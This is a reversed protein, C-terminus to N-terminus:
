QGPDPLHEYLRAGFARISEINELMLWAIPLGVALVLVVSRLAAFCIDFWTVEDRPKERWM